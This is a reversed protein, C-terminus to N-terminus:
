FRCMNGGDSGGGVCDKFGSIFRAVNFVRRFDFLFFRILKGFVIASFLFVKTFKKFLIIIKLKCKLKFSM